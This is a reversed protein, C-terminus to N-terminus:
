KDLILAPLVCEQLYERSRDIVQLLRVHLKKKRCCKYTLNDRLYRDDIPMLCECEEAGVRLLYDMRCLDLSYTYNLFYLSSEDASPVNAKIIVYLRYGKGVEFCEQGTGNARPRQM